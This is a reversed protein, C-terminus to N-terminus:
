VSASWKSCRGQLFRTLPAAWPTRPSNHQAKASRWIRATVFSWSGRFIVCGSGPRSGCRPVGRTPWRRASGDSMAMSSISSRRVSIVFSRQALTAASHFGRCLCTRCGRDSPRDGDPGPWSNAARRWRASSAGLLRFEARLDGARVRQGAGQKKGDIGRRQEGISFLRWSSTTRAQCISRPVMMWCSRGQHGAVPSRAVL